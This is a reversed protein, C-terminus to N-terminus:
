IGNGLHELLIKVGIGILVIGAGIELRLRTLRSFHAGLLVGTAAVLFTTFGIILGALWLKVGILGFGIGVVVADISTAIGMTVLNKIHLLNGRPINPKNRIGDYIMKGGVLALLVFAVWHDVSKILENLGEGILGGIVPAIGQILGLFFGVRLANRIRVSKTVVGTCVSVAFSDVALGLGVLILSILGM